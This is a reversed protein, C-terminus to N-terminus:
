LEKVTVFVPTLLLSAGTPSLTSPIETPIYFICSVINQDLLGNADTDALANNYYSTPLAPILDGTSLVLTPIEPIPRVLEVFVRDNVSERTVSLVRHIQNNGDLLWQRPEQWSERVNAPNYVTGVPTDGYVFAEDGTQEVGDTRPLAGEQSSEIM